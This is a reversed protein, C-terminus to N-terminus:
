SATGEQEDESGEGTLNLVARIEDEDMDLYASLEEISFKQNDDDSIERIAAELKRVKEVMYNDHIKQETQEELWQNMHSYIQTKMWIDGDMEPIDEPLVTLIGLNGEQILDGIFIDNRYIRRAYALIDPLYLQTLRELVSTDGVGYSALLQAREGQKESPLTKMYERYEDMCRADDPELPVQEEDEKDSLEKNDSLTEESSVKAKSFDITNLDAGQIRIGQVKLYEYLSQLQATSLQNLGFIDLIETNTLNKDHSMALNMVQELKEQFERVEMM